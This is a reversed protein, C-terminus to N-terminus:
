AVGFTGVVVTINDTGGNANAEGVLQECITQPRQREQLIAAIREDSVMGTLGDSCVLIIDDPELDLKHLEVDVGPAHGGLGNTLIHRSPHCSAEKTSLAGFHVMQAAVTHDHTLQHLGNRSFLYCRSDGAHAVFLRRNVAFAMTLTTGMGTLEPRHVAEDFLKIDAEILASQFEKLVVQEDSAKLNFFRNLTNLLFSEITVATLTSAVDGAQHGGMGDAVLFIHGRHRSYQIKAQPISTGHVILTRAMEVIVFQDQNSPRVRGKDTLGFSNVTLQPSRQAPALPEADLELDLESESM